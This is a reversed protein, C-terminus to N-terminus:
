GEVQDDDDGKDISSSAPPTEWRPFTLPPRCVIQMRRFVVIWSPKVKGANSPAAPVDLLVDHGLRGVRMGVVGGFRVDM